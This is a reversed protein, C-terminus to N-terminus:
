VNLNSRIFYCGLHDENRTYSDKKVLTIDSAFYGDTKIQIVFHRAMSPYREIIHGIRREVKDARKIGRKTSLAASAKEVQQTFREEISTKMSREKKLKGTSHVKLLYDTTAGSVVKGLTITEKAKSTIEEVPYGTIECVASNETIWRSTHLESHPCVARSIIQTLALQIKQEDWNSRELFQNIKLQEIGQFCTWEAGVERADNRNLTDVDVMRQKKAFEQESVDIKGGPVLQGYYHDALQAVDPDQEEFLSSRRNLRDNLIGRIPILKEPSIDVFGINLLTRHCIRNFENRYSEVLRYYGQSHGSHPNHRMSVKFYMSCLHWMEYWHTL